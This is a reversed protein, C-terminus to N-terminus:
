DNDTVIDTTEILPKECMEKEYINPDYRNDHFYKVCTMIMMLAWAYQINGSANGSIGTFMLITGLSLFTYTCSFSFLLSIIYFILGYDDFVTRAMYHINLGSDIGKGFWTEFKTFDANISNVIPAIRVSASGDAEQITKNNLSTTAELTTTARELAEVELFSTLSYAILLAPITYYWNHKRVFYLSLFILGVFATGSGMTTIMWFFQITVWKHEGNLLEKLTFPGENRKYECCKIYAYYAVLMFRGFHSPELFLSNCGLGRDLELYLNIIPINNLGLLTFIQQIVAVIFCIKILLKITNIFYDITFVKEITVLNYFSIYTFVLLASYVLTSSRFTEPHFSATLFQFSLYIIGIIFAKSFKLTHTFLILIAAVM